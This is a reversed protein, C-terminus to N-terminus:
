LKVWRDPIIDETNHNATYGNDGFWRSPAIVNDSDSLWAGWWSFSSNAIIHHSCMSMLCMDVLNWKSESIMFKDPKFLNQDKCWNIDDSFILVPLNSDFKSLAEEYYELSCPPHDVSKKVYDTRRVHLSIVEDFDFAEKCPNLIESKFTFDERISDAIHSFYKETQFYGSLNINDPCEDVYKKSYNYQTEPYVGVRGTKRNKLNLLTFAEFLQHDEWENKFNSEPICFEYGKTKAIGRLAAYQFMQNGLRGLSGIHNFGIM